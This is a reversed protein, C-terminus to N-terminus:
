ASRLSASVMTGGILYFLHPFFFSKSIPKCFYKRLCHVLEVEVKRRTENREWSTSCGFKKVGLSLGSLTQCKEVSTKSM